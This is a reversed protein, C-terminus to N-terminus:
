VISKPDKEELILKEDSELIKLRQEIEPITKDHVITLEKVQNQMTKASQAIENFARSNATAYAEFSAIILQMITTRYSIEEKEVNMKISNYETLHKQKMLACEEYKAQIKARETITIQNQQKRQDLSEMLHKLEKNKEEFKRLSAELEKRSKSIRDHYSSIQRIDEPFSSTSTLMKRLSAVQSNASLQISLLPDKFETSQSKAFEAFNSGFSQQLSSIKKNQNKQLSEIDSMLANFEPFPQLKNWLKGIFKM